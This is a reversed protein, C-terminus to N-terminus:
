KSSNVVNCARVPGDLVCVITLTSAATAGGDNCVQVCDHVCMDHIIDHVGRTAAPGARAAAAASVAVALVLCTVVTAVKGKM